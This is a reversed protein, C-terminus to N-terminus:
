RMTETRMRAAENRNAMSPRPPPITYTGTRVQAPNGTLSTAM